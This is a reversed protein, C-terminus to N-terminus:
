RELFEISFYWINFFVAMSIYVRINLWYCCIMRGRSSSDEVEVLLWPLGESNILVRGDCIRYNEIFLRIWVYFVHKLWSAQLATARIQSSQWLLWWRPWSSDHVSSYFQLWSCFTKRQCWLRWMYKWQIWEYLEQSVLCTQINKVNCAM